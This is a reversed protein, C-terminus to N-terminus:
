RSSRPSPGAASENSDSTGGDSILWAEQGKVRRPPATLVVSRRCPFLRRGEVSTPIIYQARHDAVAKTAASTVAGSHACPDPPAVSGAAGGCATTVFSM